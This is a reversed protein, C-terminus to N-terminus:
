RRQLPGTGFDRAANGILFYGFPYQKIPAPYRFFNVGIGQLYSRNVSTLSQFISPYKLRAM